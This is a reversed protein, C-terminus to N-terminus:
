SGDHYSLRHTSIYFGHLWFRWEVVRIDEEDVHSYAFVGDRIILWSQLPLLGM